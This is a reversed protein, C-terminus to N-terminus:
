GLPRVQTEWMRSLCKVTHAVLSTVIVYGHRTHTYYTCPTHSQTHHTNPIHHTLPTPIHYTHRFTHPPQPSQTTHTTNTCYTLKQPIHIRHTGPIHIHPLHTHHTYIHPWTAHSHSTHTTHPHTHTHPTHQTLNGYDCCKIDKPLLVKTFTFLSKSYLYQYKHQSFGSDSRLNRKYSSIHCTDVFSNLSFLM